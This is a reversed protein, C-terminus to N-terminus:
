GKEKYLDKTLERKKYYMQSFTLEPKAYVSVDIGEELGLRIADMQEFDFEPKAYVSVDVGKESDRICM